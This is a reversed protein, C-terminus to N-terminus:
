FHAQVHSGCCFAVTEDCLEMDANAGPRVLLSSGAVRATHLQRAHSVHAFADDAGHVFMCELHPRASLAEQSDLLARPVALEVLTMGIDICFRRACASRFLDTASQVLADAALERVSMSASSLLLRKPPVRRALGCALAAGIAHGVIVIEYRPLLYRAEELVDAAAAMAADISCSKPPSTSSYGPYEVAVIVIPNGDRNQPPLKRFLRPASRVTDTGGHLYLVLTGPTQTVVGHTLLSPTSCWYVNGEATAYEASDTESARRVMGPHILHRELGWRRFFFVGLAM